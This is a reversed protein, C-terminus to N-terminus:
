GGLLNYLFKATERWIPKDFALLECTQELIIFTGVYLFVPHVRGYKIRDRIAAILIFSYALVIAFWIEPHPISPFFHRFRFWAPWLVIILSLLMLRKHYEPKKRYAIGAMVLAVFLIGSTFVGLLSSYGMEGMETQIDRKVVYMGAPIMTFLVGLAVFIGLWGLKQHWKIKRKQIFTTQVVFLLVWAFAFAGHVHIIVPADFTGEAAPIFFTKSFGLCVALVGVFSMILYFKPKQKHPPHM